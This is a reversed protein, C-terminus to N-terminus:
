KLVEPADRGRKDRGQAGASDVGEAEKRLRAVTGELEQLQRRSHTVLEEWAKHVPQLAELEEAAAASLDTNHGATKLHATPDLRYPWFPHRQKSVGLRGAAM